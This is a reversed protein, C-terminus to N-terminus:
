RDRRGFRTVGRPKFVALTMAVALLVLAVSAHLLPSLNRVAALELDPDAALKAMSDFTQMYVLLIITSFVNISLKAVVWYHRFLGWPTVLAQVLGTLLSAFAFPVLVYWAAADMVLYSGRVTRADNSIVGVAALALFAAIAGFWGVSAGVHATLAIKRVRPSV